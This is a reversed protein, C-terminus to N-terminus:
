DGQLRDRISKGPAHPSDADKNPDVGNAALWYRMWLDHTGGPFTQAAKLLKGSAKKKDAIQKIKPDQLTVKEKLFENSLSLGQGNVNLRALIYMPLPKQTKTIKGVTLLYPMPTLIHAGDIGGRKSGLELNDRTAAWSTQKVVKVDPMGHKAFFGKEKAIILPSADTLAIFGLTAGSVEPADPGTATSSPQIGAKKSGGCAALWVAGAASGAATILFKRRSLNSM